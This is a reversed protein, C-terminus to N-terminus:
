NGNGNGHGHGNGNDPPPGGPAVTTTTSISLGYATALAGLDGLLTLGSTGSVTGASTASTITAVATQLDTSAQTTNHSSLDVLVQAVQTTLTQSVSPQVSGDLVAASLDRSWRAFTAPGPAPAQTTTTVPTTSTSTSTSTTPTNAGAGRLLFGVVLALALGGAVFARDAGSGFRRSPRPPRKASAARMTAGD